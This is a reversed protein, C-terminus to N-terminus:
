QNQEDLLPTNTDDAPTFQWRQKTDAHVIVAKKWDQPLVVQICPATMMQAYHRGLAPKVERYIFQFEGSRRTQAVLEISYGTNPRSGLAMTVTHYRLSAGEPEACMNNRSLPLEDEKIVTTTCASQTFAVILGLVITKIIRM